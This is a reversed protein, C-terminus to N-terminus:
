EKSYISIQDFQMVNLLVSHYEPVDINLITNKLNPMNQTSSHGLFTTSIKLKYCCGMSKLKEVLLVKALNLFKNTRKTPPPTAM